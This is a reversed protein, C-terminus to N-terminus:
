RKRKVAKSAKEIRKVDRADLPCVTYIQPSGLQIRVAPIFPTWIVKRQHQWPIGDDDVITNKKDFFYDSDVIGRAVIEPGEKVYIVDGEDIDYVFRKLSAHQATGSLQSYKAKPQGRPYRSLDVGDFPTYEIIAVKGDRCEDWMSPGNTGRRFAMRWAAM